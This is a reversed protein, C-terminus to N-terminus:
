EGIKNLTNKITKSITPDSMIDRCIRNRDYGGFKSLRRYGDTLKDLYKSAEVHSAKTERLLKLKRAPQNENRVDREKDESIERRKALVIITKVCRSISQEFYYRKGGRNSEMFDCLLIVTNSKSYTSSGTARGEQMLDEQAGGDIHENAADVRGKNEVFMFRQRLIDRSRLRSALRAKIMNFDSTPTATQNAVPALELAYKSTRSAIAPITVLEAALEQAAVDTASLLEPMSMKHSRADSHTSEYPDLRGGSNGQPADCGTFYFTGVALIGVQVTQVVRLSFSM